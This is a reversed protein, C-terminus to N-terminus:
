VNNVDDGCKRDCSGGGMVDDCMTVDCKVGVSAYPDASFSFSDFSMVEGESIPEIRVTRDSPCGDRVLYYRMWGRFESNPYAYCSDYQVRLKHRGANGSRLMLRVRDGVGIPHIKDTIVDNHKDVLSMSAEIEGLESEVRVKVYPESVVIGGDHRASVRRQVSCKFPFYVPVVRSVIGSGPQHRVHNRYTIMNGSQESDTGCDSYGTDFQIFRGRPRGKCSSDKLTLNAVQNKPVADIPLWLSMSDDFCEIILRTPKAQVKVVLLFGFFCCLLGVIRGMIDPFVDV